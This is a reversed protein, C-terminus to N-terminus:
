KTGQNKLLTQLKFKNQWQAFWVHKKWCFFRMDRTALCIILCLLIAIYNVVNHHIKHLFNHHGTFTWWSTYRRQVQTGAWMKAVIWESHNSCKWSIWSKHEQICFNIIGWSASILGIKIIAQLVSSLCQSWFVICQDWFYRGSQQPLKPCPSGQVSFSETQHAGPTFHRSTYILFCPLQKWCLLKTLQSQENNLTWIDLEFFLRSQLLRPLHDQDVIKQRM